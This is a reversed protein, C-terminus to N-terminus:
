GDAPEWRYGKGFVTILRAPSSPDVEIKERLRRVHVTVTSQDGIQWGWVERLLDDRSWVVGPHTMLWDILDFERATLALEAGARTAKRKLRDLTLDGDTILTTVPEAPVPQTRRLVSRIRLDLEAFSFPKTVYDDAGHQLGLVREHEQGKATVMIVPLNVRLTRLRRCVELGGMGPLMLDLLVLDAGRSAFAAIASPGDLAETVEHGTTRLRHALTERVTADDEVVLIHTM